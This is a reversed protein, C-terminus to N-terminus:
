IPHYRMMLFFFSNLISSVGPKPRLTNVANNGTIIMPTAAITSIACCVTPNASLAKITPIRKTPLEEVAMNIEKNSAMKVIPIPLFIGIFDNILEQEDDM